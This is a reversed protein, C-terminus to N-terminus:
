HQLIIDISPLYAIGECTGLHTGAHECWIFSLMFILISLWAHVQIFFPTKGLSTENVNSGNMM